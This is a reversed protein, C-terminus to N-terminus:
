DGVIELSNFAEKIDIVKQIKNNIINELHSNKFRVAIDKSRELEGIADDLYTDLMTKEDKTIYDLKHETEKSWNDIQSCIRSLRSCLSGIEKSINNNKSNNKTNPSLSMSVNEIIISLNYISQVRALYFNFKYLSEVKQAYEKAKNELENAQSEFLKANKELVNANSEYKKAKTELKKANKEHENAINETSKVKKDVEITKYGFFISLLAVIFTFFFALERAGILNNTKSLVDLLSSTNGNQQINNNDTDEINSAVQNTDFPLASKNKSVKNQEKLETIDKKATDIVQSSFAYTNWCSYVFLLFTLVVIGVIITKFSCVKKFLTYVKKVTM